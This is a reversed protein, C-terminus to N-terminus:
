RAGAWGETGGLREAARDAIAQRRLTEDLIARRGVGTLRYYRRLRGDVREDHDPEIQGEAVLRDLAGYLTGAGLTTGGDSLDRM